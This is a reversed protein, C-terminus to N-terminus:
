RILKLRRAHKQALKTQRSDTPQLEGRIIIQEAHSAAELPDGSWIVLNATKGAELSGYREMGFIRAPVLTAAALARDWPLGARVANGLRFRLNSALHSSRTSIAVEVGAKVLLAANDARSLRSDFSEPLNVLPDLIVPIKARALPEAVRWAEEGGLVVVKLREQAAIAILRRIDAARSVQVVLPMKGAIVPLLAELDLRSASLSRLDNSTFANKKQQYLRADDLVERLREVAVVRSGGAAGAGYVGLAAHMSLPGDQAESLWKSGEHVLDLWASQVAILGGAPRSVASTVGHRRAVSILTSEPDLGDQARVAAHIPHPLRPAFDVTSAELEVELLGIESDSEILGPTVWKGKAEIVTAGAPVPVKGVAVIKDGRLVVTGGPIMPGSVPYVDGGVIAVDQAAAVAPMLWLALWKM